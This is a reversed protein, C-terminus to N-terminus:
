NNNDWGDFDEQMKSLQADRAEGSVTLVHQEAKFSVIQVCPAEYVLNFRKNQM